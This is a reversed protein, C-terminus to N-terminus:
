DHRSLETPLPRPCGNSASWARLARFNAELSDPIVRVDGVISMFNTDGGWRPVIHWHLHDPLGAGACRGVNMGINFGHCHVCAKLADLADRLMASTEYLEVQSLESLMGKHARPAILLHGNTYPFRNLLALCDDTRWLVHNAADSEPLAAYHCLFCGGDAEDCEEGLTRVYEMRWPAWLNDNTEAM